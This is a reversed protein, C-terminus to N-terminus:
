FDFDDDDMGEPNPWAEYVTSTDLPQDIRWEFIVLTGDWQNALIKTYVQGNIWTAAERGSIIILKGRNGALLDRALTLGYGSHGGGRKGTM